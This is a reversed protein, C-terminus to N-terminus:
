SPTSAPFSGRQQQQLRHWRSAILPVTIVHSRDLGCGELHRDNFSVSLVAIAAIEAVAAAEVTSAEVM